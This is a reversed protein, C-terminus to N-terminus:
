RFSAARAKIGTLGFRFGAFEESFSLFHPHERQQYDVRSVGRLFFFRVAYSRTSSHSYAYGRFGILDSVARQPSLRHQNSRPFYFKLKLNALRFSREALSAFLASEPSRLPPPQSAASLAPWATGKGQSYSETEM